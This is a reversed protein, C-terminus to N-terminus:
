AQHYVARCPTSLTPSGRTRGCPQFAHARAAVLGVARASAAVLSFLLLALRRLAPLLLALRRLASLLLASTPRPSLRPPQSLGAPIPPNRTDHTESTLVPSRLGGGWCCLLGEFSCTPHRGCRVSPFIATADRRLLVGQGQWGKGLVACAPHWEVVHSRHPCARRPLVPPVQPSGRPDLCPSVAELVILAVQMASDGSCRPLKANGGGGAAREQSVVGQDKTPPFYRPNGAGVHGGGFCGGLLRMGGRRGSGEARLSGRESM